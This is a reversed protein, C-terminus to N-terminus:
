PECGLSKMSMSKSKEASARQNRDDRYRRAEDQYRSILRKSAACAQAETAVVETVSQACVRVRQATTVIRPVLPCNSYDTNRVSFGDRMTDLIGITHTEDREKTKRM